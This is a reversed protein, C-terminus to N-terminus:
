SNESVNNDFIKCIDQETDNWIKEFMDAILEPAEVIQVIHHSNGLSNVSIGLSWARTKNVNYKLILYRDHFATGYGNAITRYSLKVDTDSPISKELEQKAKEKANFFRTKSM